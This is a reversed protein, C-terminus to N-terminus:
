SEFRSHQVWWLLSQSQMRGDWCSVETSLVKAHNLQAVAYETISTGRGSQNPEPLYKM